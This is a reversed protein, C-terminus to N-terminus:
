WPEDEGYVPDATRRQPTPTSRETRFLDGSDWLLSLGVDSATIEVVSRKEGANTEFSRQDLRGEVVVRYGKKVSGSVNEALKGWAVINFFSTEKKKDGNQEWTRECAVSFKCLATGGQTFTLEPAQSVNGSITVISSM